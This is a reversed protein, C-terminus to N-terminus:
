SQGVVITVQTYRPQSSGAAPQQSAVLGVDKPKTKAATTKVTFGAALLTQRADPAQKGVVNPVQAAPRSSGVAIQLTVTSGVPAQGGGPPSQAVVQGATGQTDVPDTEAVFGAAEVNGDATAMDQGLVNPIGATSPAAPSTTTTKETTTTAAQTTVQLPQGSSVHISATHASLRQQAFVIGKPRQSPAVVAQVDFGADTLKAIAQQQPMGVVSPMAKTHDSSRFVFLWVLVGALALVGLLALWPWADDMPSRPPQPPPPPPVPEFSETIDTM